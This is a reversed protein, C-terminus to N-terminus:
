AAGLLEDGAGRAVGPHLRARGGDVCRRPDRGPQQRQLLPRPTSRRPAASTPPNVHFAPDSTFGDTHIMLRGLFLENLLGQQVRDSLEPFNSLDPLINGAINPIDSQSFGIEDTACVVFDHTQALVQQSGSTVERPTEWSATGMSRHGARPRAPSTSRPALSACDFNATWTGNQSPLGDPDLEFRGDRPAARSCTAPCRSPAGCGGRWRRTRRRPSTRVPTVTFSPADGEVELDALNADGLQGFADDRIHLMREAINEDSAVTFDWALYLDRAQDRGQAADQLHERLPRAASSRPGRDAPPRPLLPVRRPPSRSGDGTKLNRMAVIYRHGSAYNRAPHILLATEEPM